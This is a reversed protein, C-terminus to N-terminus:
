FHRGQTWMTARTNTVRSSSHVMARVHKDGSPLHSVDVCGVVMDDVEQLKRKMYDHIKPFWDPRKSERKEVRYLERWNGM